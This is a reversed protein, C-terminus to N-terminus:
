LVPPYNPLRFYHTYDNKLEYNRFNKIEEWTMTESGVWRNWNPYWQAFCFFDKDDEDTPLGKLKISIWTM